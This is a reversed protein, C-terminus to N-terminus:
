CSAVASSSRPRGGKFGQQEGKFDSPRICHTLEVPVNHPFLTESAAVKSIWLQSLYAPLCISLCVPLCVSLCSPCVSLISLRSPCVPNVSLISLCSLCFSLCVPGVSVSLVSLHSPCVPLVSLYPPHFTVSLCFSCLAKGTKCCNGSM